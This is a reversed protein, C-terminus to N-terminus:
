YPNLSKTTADDVPTAYSLNLYDYVANNLENSDMRKISFESIASLGNEFNLICPELEEM